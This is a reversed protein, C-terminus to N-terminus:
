VCLSQGCRAVSHMRHGAAGVSVQQVYARDGLPFFNVSRIFRKVGPLSIVQNQLQVLLPMDAVVGSGCEEVLWTILHAVLVDAYTLSSGVIHVPVDAAAASAPAPARLPAAATGAAPAAPALAALAPHSPPLNNRLIAEFRAGVFKWKEKIAAQHAVWEESPASSSSGASDAAAKSGSFKRFPCALLLSLVDRVAEAIMDCKLADQSSTGALHARRALYRVAAQSQVIEMGDIQLLPLQGFPLQGGAMEVFKERTSVIKQCFDVNTAALMWRIQDALGRGAFYYLTASHKESPSEFDATSQNAGM